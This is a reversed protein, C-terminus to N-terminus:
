QKTNPDTIGRITGTITTMMTITTTTIVSVIAPVTTATGSETGTIGAREKGAIIAMCRRSWVTM